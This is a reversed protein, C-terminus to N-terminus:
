SHLTFYDSYPQCAALYENLTYGSFAKFEKIMHPQDYFGCTLILDMLDISPNNQMMFLARQFRVIRTFEKPTAGVYETFIRSFQKYSLCAADSLSSVTLQNKNDIVKLVEGMRRYNYSDFDYLRLFLFQEILKIAHEDTSANLVRDELELLSKDELDAISVNRSLFDCMPMRFFPKVGHPQFVIVIMNIKGVSQLDLYGISQGGIFTQPQMENETLSYMRDGRHFVMQMCGIPTIRESIYLTDVNLIWYHRIFPILALSPSIFKFVDM